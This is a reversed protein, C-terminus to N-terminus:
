ITLFMIEIIIYLNNELFAKREKPYECIVRACYNM